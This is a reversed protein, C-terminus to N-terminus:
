SDSVLVVGDPKLRHAALEAAALALETEGASADVVLLTLDAYPSVLSVDLPESRETAVVISVDAMTRIQTMMAGARSKLTRRSLEVAQGGGAITLLGGKDVRAASGLTSGKSLVDGLHV